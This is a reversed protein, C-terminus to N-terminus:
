KDLVGMIDSEKMILLEDGDIKVETGSWKGFLVTDGKKYTHWRLGLAMRQITDEDCKEFIPVSKLFNHALTMSPSEHFSLIRHMKDCRGAKRLRPSNM